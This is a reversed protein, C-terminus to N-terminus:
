KWDNGIAHIFMVGNTYEAIFKDESYAVTSLTPASGVAFHCYADITHTGTGQSTLNIATGAFANARSTAVKIVTASVRIVYYNTSLSLGAPLTTTTTFQVRTGTKYDKTVTIEETSTNVAGTAFTESQFKWTVTRSGTGDQKIILLKIAGEYLNSFTLVRNGGLTVGFTKYPRSLDVTITAGDSLADVTCELYELGLGAPKVRLESGAGGKALRTTSTNADNRYIIDNAATMPDAFGSPLNLIQSGDHAPYKNDTGVTPITGARDPIDITRNATLLDANLRARFGDSNIDFYDNTTGTDTGQTHNSTNFADVLENFHAAVVALRVTANNLHAQRTTGDLGRLILTTTLSGSANATWKFVERLSADSPDIVGYGSSIGPDSNLVITLSSDTIAGNLTTEFYAKAQPVPM